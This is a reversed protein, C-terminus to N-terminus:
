SKGIKVKKVAKQAEPSKPLTVTLVGKDFKATIKDEDIGEPLSIAREVSGFRRESLYYNKKKEEKEERKEGKLSLMGNAVTVEIDDESMGPLEASVEYGKDTEAIDLSPALQGARGFPEALLGRGLSPFTGSFFNDFLNDIERRLDLFPHALLGGRQALAPTKKVEISSKEAM